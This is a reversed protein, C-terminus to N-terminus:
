LGSSKLQPSGLIVQNSRYADGLLSKLSGSASSYATSLSSNYAALNNKLYTAYTLELSNNLAASQLQGDTGSDKYIALEKDGVKKKHDKLYSNLQAQQSSLTTQVTAALAQTNSDKSQGEVLQSVRSIEQARAMAEVVKTNDTSKGSSLSSWIIIILILIAAGAVILLPKPLSGLPKKAPAQGGNLIFDYQPTPSSPQM